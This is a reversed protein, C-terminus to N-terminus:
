TFFYRLIEFYVLLLKRKHSFFQRLKTKFIYKSFCFSFVTVKCQFFDCLLLLRCCGCMYEVPWCEVVPVNVSQSYSQSAVWYLRSVKYKMMWNVENDVEDDLKSRPNDGFVQSKGWELLLWDLEWEGDREIWPMRRRWVVVRARRRWKCRGSRRQNDESGRERWKLSWHMEWFMGMMEGWCM